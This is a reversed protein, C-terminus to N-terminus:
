FINSPVGNSLLIDLFTFSCSKLAMTLGTKSNSELRTSARYKGYKISNQYLKGVLQFIRDIQKSYGLVHCSIVLKM